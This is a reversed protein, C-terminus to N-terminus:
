KLDNIIAEAINNMHDAVRELNSVIDLFIVGSQLLCLGSELREIHSARLADTLNDIRVEHQIILAAKEPDTHELAAITDAFMQDIAERLENLEAIGQDSFVLHKSIK